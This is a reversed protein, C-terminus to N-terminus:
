SARVTERPGWHSDRLVLRSELVVRQGRRPGGERLTSLLLQAATAGLREAPQEVVTLPPTVMPAWIADGFGVIAVDDPWRLGRERLATLAGATLVVSSSFLATPPTQMALLERTAQTGPEQSFPVSRVYQPLEPLGAFRLADVYGRLRDRATDVREPGNLLAIRRHGSEVLLRVAKFASDYNNMTVRHLTTAGGERDMVVLPTGSEPLRDVEEHVAGSPTLILGDVRGRLLLRVLELETAPDDNSSAVLGHHGGATLASQVGAVARSFFLNTADPVVVGIVLTESRRRRVEYGLERIAAQVRSRSGASVPRPGDNVVYSVTALSVGAVRAVDRMTPREVENSM